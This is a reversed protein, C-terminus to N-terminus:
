FRRYLTRSYGKQRMSRDTQKLSDIKENAMQKFMMAQEMEQRLTSFEFCTQYIIAEAGNVTLDDYDGNADLRDLFGYYYLNLDAWQISALMTYSGTGLTCADTLEFTTGDTVSAITTTFTTDVVVTDGATLDSTDGTTATTSTETVSVTYSKKELPPMLNVYGAEIDFLSPYQQGTDTLNKYYEKATLQSLLKSFGTDDEYDWVLAILEKYDSPLAYQSTGGITSYTNSNRMFWYNYDKMIQQHVNQIIGNTDSGATGRLVVATGSPVASNGFLSFCVRAYIQALTM